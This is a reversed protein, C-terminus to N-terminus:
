RAADNRRAMEFHGEMVKGEYFGYRGWKGRIKFIDAKTVKGDLYINDGLGEPNLNLFISENRLYGSIKGSGDQHGFEKLRNRDLIQLQWDGKVKDTGDLHLIITGRVVLNGNTDFGKYDYTRSITNAGFAAFCFLLCFLPIGFCFGHKLTLLHSRDNTQM